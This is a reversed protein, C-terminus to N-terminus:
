GERDAWEWEPFEQLVGGEPPVLDYVAGTDHLGRGTTDDIAIEIGNFGVDKGPRPELPWTRVFVGSNCGRSIRFELSLVFDEVPKEYVLMYDCPHPNLAGDQVHSPEVPKGKPTMCGDTTRGDFLLVWGEEREQPSLSNNAAAPPLAALVGVFLVSAIGSM